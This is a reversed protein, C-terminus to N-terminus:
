KLMPDLESELKHVDITRKRCYYKKERKRYYLKQQNSIKDKIRYYRELRRTRTCDKCESYNKYFNNIHKKIKRMSCTKTDM